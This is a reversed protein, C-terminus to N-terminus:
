WSLPVIARTDNRSQQVDNPLQQVTEDRFISDFLHYLFKAWTAKNELYDIQYM